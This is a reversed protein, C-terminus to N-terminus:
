QQYRWLWAGAVAIDTAKVSVGLTNADLLWVSIWTTYSASYGGGVSHGQATTAPVVSIPMKDNWFGRGVGRAIMTGTGYTASANNIWVEVVPRGLNSASAFLNMFVQPQHVFGAAGINFDAIRVPSSSSTGDYTATPGYAGKVYGVGLNPVQAQPLKGGSDLTAVGGAVGRSTLPVLPTHPYAGPQVFASLANNVYVSSALVGVAANIQSTVSTQSPTANALATNCQLRDVIDTSASPAPGVSQLGSM